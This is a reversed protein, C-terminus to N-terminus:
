HSQFLMELRPNPNDIELMQLTCPSFPQLGRIQQHL